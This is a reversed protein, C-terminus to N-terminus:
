QKGDALLGKQWLWDLIIQDVPSSRDRDRYTLWTVEEVESNPQPEGELEGAYCRMQVNVGVPHGHAQAEFTGVFVLTEPVVNVSLEEMIERGLTQIDTEGAERKGGPIYYVDKGKNRTSLIRGDKVYILAVKDITM